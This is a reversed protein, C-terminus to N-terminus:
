AERRIWWIGFNDQHSWYSWTIMDIPRGGLAAMKRGDLYYDWNDPNSGFITPNQTPGQQSNYKGPILLAVAAYNMINQKVAAVLERGGGIKNVPGFPYQSFPFYTEPIAEPTTSDGLNELGYIKPAGNEDELAYVGRIWNYAQVMWPEDYDKMKWGMWMDAGACRGKLGGGFQNRFTLSTGGWCAAFVTWNPAYNTEQALHPRHYTRKVISVEPKGQAPVPLLHYCTHSSEIAIRGEAPPVTFDYTHTAYIHLYGRVGKGDENMIPYCSLEGMLVEHHVPGWLPWSKDRVWQWVCYETGPTTSHLHTGKGENPYEIGYYYPAIDDGGAVIVEWDMCSPWPIVNWYWNAGEWYFWRFHNWDMSDDAEGPFHGTIRNTYRQVALLHFKLKSFSFNNEDLTEGLDGEYWIPCHRPTMFPNYFEPGTYNETVTFFGSCLNNLSFDPPSIDYGATESVVSHRSYTFEAKRYTSTDPTYGPYMPSPHTWQATIFNGFADTAFKKFRYKMVVSENGVRYVYVGINFCDYLGSVLYGNNITGPESGSLDLYFNFIPNECRFYVRKYNNPDIEAIMGYGYFDGEEPKKKEEKKPPILMTIRNRGHDHLLILRAGNPLDRVRQVYHLESNEVYNLLKWQLNKAVKLTEARIAPDADENVRIDTFPPPWKQMFEKKGVYGM